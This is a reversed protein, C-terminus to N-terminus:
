KDAQVSLTVPGGAGFHTAYVAVSACEQAKPPLPPSFRASQVSGDDGIQMQLSTTISLHAAPSSDPFGYQVMCRRVAAELRVKPDVPLIAASPALRPVPFSPGGPAPATHPELKGASSSPAPLAVAVVEDFSEAPRVNFRDIIIANADEADLEVHAPASVFERGVAISGRTLDVTVKRGSRAVRLHTGRVSVRARGLEISFREKAGADSSPVVEAEVAGDELSLAISGGERLVSGRTGAGDLMFKATQPSEFVARRGRLEFAAGPELSAGLAAVKGSLLLEGQLRTLQSSVEVRSQAAVQTPAPVQPETFSGKLFFLTGAAIALAGGVVTFGSARSLRLVRASKQAQQEEQEQAELKAFLAEDMREWDIKSPVFENKAADTIRVLEPTRDDQDDRNM